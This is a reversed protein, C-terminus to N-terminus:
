AWSIDVALQGRVCRAYTVGMSAHYPELVPTGAKELEARDADTLYRSENPRYNGAFESRYRTPPRRHIPTRLHALM